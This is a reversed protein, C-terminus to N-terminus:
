FNDKSVIAKFNPENMCVRIYNLSDAVSDFSHIGSKMLSDDLCMEYLDPADKEEWNRLVLRETEM